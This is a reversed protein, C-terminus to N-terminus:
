RSTRILESRQQALLAKALQQLSGLGHQCLMGLLPISQEEGRNGLTEQVSDRVGQLRKAHQFAVMRGETPEKFFTPTTVDGLALSSRGDIGKHPGYLQIM